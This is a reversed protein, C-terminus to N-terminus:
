KHIWPSTQPKSSEIQIPSEGNSSSDRQDKDLLHYYRIENESMFLSSSDRSITDMLSKSNQLLVEPKEHHNWTCSKAMLQQKRAKFYKMLTGGDVTSRKSERLTDYHIQKQTKFSILFSDKSAAAWSTDESMKSYSIITWTDHFLNSTQYEISYTQTSRWRILESTEKSTQDM